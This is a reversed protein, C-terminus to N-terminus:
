GGGTIEITLLQSLVSRRTNLPLAAVIGRVKRRSLKQDQSAGSALPGPGIFVDIHGPRVTLRQVNFVTDDLATRQKILQAMGLVQDFFVLGIAQHDQSAVAQHVEGREGVEGLAVPADPRAIPRHADRIYERRGLLKFM